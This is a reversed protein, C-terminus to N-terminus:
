EEKIGADKIVKGMRVMESKIKAAFQEPTGGVAELGASTFREKLEASNLVQVVQRNLREVVPKPTGAPAFIGSMQVSEYGPVGGSAVTPMGPFLPSPEASTIGLARIKGAKVQAMVPGASPFTLQVEGGLLANVAPGQGKYPIRAIDIGAMAKFLEAALHTASGSPGSSYNLAGPKSKALAVFEKVTTAAVSAHVVLITPATAVMVVPSFDKVPHYPANSRLYPTLWLSSGSYFLTYGDPPAKSVIAGPVIGGGRNDMIVQQGLGASMGPTIMRAIVDSSGGVAGTLLRISKTPYNQGHAIGALMMLGASLMGVVDRPKLMFGGFLFM